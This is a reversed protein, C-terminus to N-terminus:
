TISALEESLDLLWLSEKIKHLAVPDQFKKVEVHKMVWKNLLLEYLEWFLVNIYCIKM